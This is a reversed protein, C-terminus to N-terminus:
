GEGEEREENAERIAEVGERLLIPLMLLAAVQDAWWWGLLANLALGLVLTFSM